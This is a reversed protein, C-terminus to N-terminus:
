QRNRPRAPNGLVQVGADVNRTVVAGAGVVAGEGVVIGQVLVAGAGVFANAAISVGGCLVAGPGIFVHSGLRCDHDVRAGTNVVTNEGIEAGTQVIAGAMIQSGQMLTVDRGVVAAPHCVSAFGFGAAKWREFLLRRQSSGPLTGVGNALLFEDSRRELLWDDAGLVTHQLVRSGVPLAPDLVGQVVLNQALMADLLVRGHGGAALLILNKTSM